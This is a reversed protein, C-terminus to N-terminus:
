NTATRGVLEDTGVQYYDALRLVSSFTPMRKGQEYLSIADQGIGTALSVDEQSVNKKARLVRLNTALTDQYNM